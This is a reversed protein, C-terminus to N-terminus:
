TSPSTNWASTTDHSSCCCVALGVHRSMECRYLVHHEPDQKIGKTYVAAAKLWEKNKYHINGEDKLM